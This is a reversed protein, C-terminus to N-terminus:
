AQEQRRARAGRAIETDLADLRQGWFMRVDRCWQELEDLAAPALRYVRQRGREQAEVVGAERLVRLHRSIGPRSADFRAAVEGATLEGSALHEVISRRTPDALAEWTGNM